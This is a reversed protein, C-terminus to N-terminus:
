KAPDATPAAVAKPIDNFKFTQTAKVLVPDGRMTPPSFKWQSLAEMALDALVMHDAKIISPMCVKGEENIYFGITVDGKIGANRYSPGYVPPVVKIPEPIKDIDRLTAPQYEMRENRWPTLFNNVIDFFDSNVVIGTAEFEINLESIVSVPQGNLMAPEFTWKRIVDEVSKAFAKRSYAVVMYDNLVGERSVSIVIRVYGTRQKDIQSLPFLPDVTKHVVLSRDPRSARMMGPEMTPAAARSIGEMYNQTRAHEAEGVQAFCLPAAFLLAGFSIRLITLTKTKM